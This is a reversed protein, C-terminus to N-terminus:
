PLNNSLQEGYYCKNIGYVGKPDFSAAVATVLRYGSNGAGTTCLDITFVVAEM